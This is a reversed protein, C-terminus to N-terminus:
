RQENLYVTVRDQIVAACDAATCDGAFFREAEEDVLCLVLASDAEPAPVADEVAALILSADEATFDAEWAYDPYYFAADSDTEAELRAELAARNTPLGSLQASGSQCDETLLRRIFRWAADTDGCAATMALGPMLELEARGEGGPVGLLALEGGYASKAATYASFGGGLELVTLLQGGAAIRAADSGGSADGEPLAACFELLAAFEGSTFDCSASEWDVFRSLEHGCLESFLAQGAMDPGLLTCGEPLDEALTRLTELEPTLGELSAPGAWTSLVFAGSATYIEGAQAYPRVLAGSLEADAAIYPALDVLFGGEALSATDLGNTYLIDPASGTLIDANLREAGTSYDRLEILTGGDTRNFHAAEGMIDSSIGVGALTLTEREPVESAPTSVLRVLWLGDAAYVLCLIDGEGSRGLWTLFSADVGVDTWYLLAQPETEDPALAMLRQGDSWLLGDGAASLRRVSAPLTLEAEGVAGNVPDIPLLYTGADDTIVACVDEGLSVLDRVPTEGDTASVFGGDRDFVLARGDSAALYIYGAADAACDTVSAIAGNEDTLLETMDRAAREAFEADLIHLIRREERAYGPQLDSSSAATETGDEQTSFFASEVFVLGGDPAAALGSIYGSGEAGEPVPLPEFGEFREAGGGTLEASYLAPRSGDAGDFFLRGGCLAACAAGGPALQTFEPVLVYEGEPEPAGSNVPEPAGCATLLALALLAAIIAAARRKKPM